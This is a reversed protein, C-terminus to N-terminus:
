RLRAEEVVHEFSSLGQRARFGRSGSRLNANKQMDKLRDQLRSYRIRRYAALQAVPGQEAAAELEVSV